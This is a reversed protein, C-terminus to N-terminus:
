NAVVVATQICFSRQIKDPVTGISEISPLLRVICPVSVPELTLIFIECIELMRQGREYNALNKNISSLAQKVEKGAIAM